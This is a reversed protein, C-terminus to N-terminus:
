WDEESEYIANESDLWDAFEDCEEEPNDLRCFGSKYYPCTFDDAPCCNFGYDYLM